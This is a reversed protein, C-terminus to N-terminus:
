LRCTAGFGITTLGIVTTLAAQLYEGSKYETVAGYTLMKVGMGCLMVKASLRNLNM